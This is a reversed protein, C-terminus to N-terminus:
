FYTPNDNFKSNIYVYSQAPTQKPCLDLVKFGDRGHMEISQDM